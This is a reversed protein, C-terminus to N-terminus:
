PQCYFIKGGGPQHQVREIVFQLGSPKKGAEGVGSTENSTTRNRAWFILGM